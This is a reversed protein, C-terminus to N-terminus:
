MEVAWVDMTIYGIIGSLQLGTPVGLTEMWDTGKWSYMHNRIVALVGIEMIKAVLLKIEDDTHPQSDQKALNFKSAVM